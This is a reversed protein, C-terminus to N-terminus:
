AQSTVGSPMSIMRGTGNVCQRVGGFAGDNRVTKAVSINSAM